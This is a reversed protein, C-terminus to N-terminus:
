KVHATIVCYNYSNITIIINMAYCYYNKGKKYVVADDNEIISKLYNIVNCTKINLNKKVREEGLKTTHLNNINSLLMSHDLNNCIAM